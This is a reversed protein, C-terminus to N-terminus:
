LRLGAGRCEILYLQQSSTHSSGDAPQTSISFHVQPLLQQMVAIATRTHLTPENCLMSSTGEAMAMFIILQDQLWDDVAAGSQLAELLEDAAAAGVAEAAVGREALASAGFLCGTSTTAVLMIGGGDGFAHDPPEHVAQVDVVAPVGALPQGAGAAAAGGGAAAAAANPGTSPVAAAAAAATPLAAAAGWVTEQKRDMLAQRVCDAAARAMRSGVEPKLQGATFATGDIRLLRGRSIREWAPLAQGAPLSPVQLVAEGGGKPYFGRRVLKLNLGAAAPGLLRQLTPLLVHQLYGIPPAFSADTGGRLTLTSVTSRSAAQQRALLLCPLAQQVMLTCSGATKTDATYTGAATAGPTFTIATSRVAGGELHGSCIAEVLRLGTLHQPSLGPNKRGARIKDVHISSGLLASLAVANRLIQGGGELQSGDICLACPTAQCQQQQQQQQEGSSGKGRAMHRSQSLRNDAYSLALVARGTAALM